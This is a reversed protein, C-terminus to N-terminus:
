GHIAKIAFVCDYTGTVSGCEIEEVSWDGWLGAWTLMAEFSATWVYCSNQKRRRGLAYLNNYHILWYQNNDIQKWINLHEGRIEDMTKVFSNLLVTIKRQKGPLLKILRQEMGSSKRLRLSRETAERGWERIKVPALNGFVQEFGYNLQSLYEIPTTREENNPPDENLYQPLQASQVVQPWVRDAVDRAVHVVNSFHSNLSYRQTATLRPLGMQILTSVAPGIAPPLNGTATSRPIPTVKPPVVPRIPAVPLPDPAVPLPPIIPDPAVPLPPIAPEAAVPVPAAAPKAPVPSAAGNLGFFEALKNETEERDLNGFGTLYEVAESFEEEQLSDVTPLTDVQGSQWKLQGEEWSLLSYLAADGEERDNEPGLQAHILHGEKFVLVAGRENNRALLMGTLESKQVHKLVPPLKKFDLVSM